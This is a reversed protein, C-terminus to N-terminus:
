PFVPTLVTRMQYDKQPGKVVYNMTIVGEAESMLFELDYHDDGCLHCHRAVQNEGEIVFSLEHLIDGSRHPDNYILTISCGQKKYVFSRYFENETGNSKLIGEEKYELIDAAVSVFAASGEASGVGIIERSLHWCGPLKLWVEQDISMKM